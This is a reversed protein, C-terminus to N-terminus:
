IEKEDEIVGDGQHCGQKCYLLEVLDVKRVDETHFYARIETETSLSKTKVSLEDFFGLPIPSSPITPLELTAKEEQLFDKWSVFITNKLSLNNGM